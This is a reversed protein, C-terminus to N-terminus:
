SCRTRSSTRSPGHDIRATDIGVAAIGRTVLAEAAARSIGPFHLTSIDGPTDDGLYRRRDLWRAAWSTRVLVITGPAIASHARKFAEIDSVGLLADPNQTTAESM